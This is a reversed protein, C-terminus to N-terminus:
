FQQLSGGRLAETCGPAICYAKLRLGLGLAVIVLGLM